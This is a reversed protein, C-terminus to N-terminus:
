PAINLLIEVLSNVSIDQQKDISVNGYSARFSLNAPLLEKTAIGDINTVGLDRWAGSYYKVDVNSLPQNTSNTVKVSCLVTNFDVVPNTSLNQQKDKSVFEYTMRFSYNIPLLEKYAVGNSTTGFTRWAGAYYQVTGQDILNGLSNKLQVAANVTQFVVTPDVSLNQQKDQSGYEYAMRFSYNIPLLEKYAVGNLTTGFTRWAGAYYQVIGVDGMPAPMLNGLSNKLQVAANVTQFVVTPDVSLNQQKDISGYEYTMRFSYNIPLLEKYVVGNSTSGFSRWAGVYYQVIGVDILNGLSNKLQVAANITQFVVTPDVSLNQQKDISGYEYAMRFSYNIPLLEKYAVGNLTTGFTRWAGAYYQVTGQDILNGLSNKLQVAANVTTFTYTNNQANVNDVQQSAYEYFVRISVTPRTTIVTFTGDGNNVADKWSGEYYQVNSAPIQNGLSNKLNVFLNQSSQPIKELLYETNYRLLAYAESTLNSTSDIDLQQLVTQLTTRAANNNNQQLQSKAINFYNTYKNEILNDSIWGLLFSQNTYYIITDLFNSPIFPSPPDKPGITKGWVMNERRDREYLEVAATSNMEDTSPAANEAQMAFIAVSPLGSVIFKFGVKTEGPWILYGNNLVPTGWGELNNTYGSSEWYGPMEKKLLNKNVDTVVWILNIRQKSQEDNKVIYSYVYKNDQKTTICKVHPIFNNAPFLETSPAIPTDFWQGYESGNWSWVQSGDPYFLNVIEMIGDGEVDVFTMGYETGNIANSTLLRSTSGDWSQIWLSVGGAGWQTIIEVTKDLNIDDIAFIKVIGDNSLEPESLWIINGDKYIGTRNGQTEGIYDNHLVTVFVFCNTLMGYPNQISENLYKKDGRLSDIDIIDGVEYIGSYNNLFYQNLEETVLIERDRKHSQAVLIQNIFLLFIIVYLIKITKM